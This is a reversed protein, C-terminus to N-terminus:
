NIFLCQKKSDLFDKFKKIKKMKSLVLNLIYSKSKSYDKINIWELNLAERHNEGSKGEFIKEYLIPLNNWDKLDNDPIEYLIGLYKSNQIYIRDKKNKIKKLIKNKKDHILFGTEENFERLATDEINKDYWEVKGGLPNKVLKKNQYENAILVYIEGRYFKYPIIGSARINNIQYYKRNGVKKVFEAM